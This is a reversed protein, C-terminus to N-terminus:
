RTTAPSVVSVSITSADRKASVVVGEMAGEEASSVQGTLASPAQAYAAPVFLAFCVASRLCAANM